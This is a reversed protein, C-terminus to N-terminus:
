DRNFVSKSLFFEDCEIENCVIIINKSLCTVPSFVVSEKLVICYIFSRLLKNYLFFFHKRKKRKYKDIYYTVQKVDGKEDYLFFLPINLYVIKADLMLLPILQIKLM